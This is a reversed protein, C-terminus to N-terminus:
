IIIRHGMDEGQQDEFLRGELRNKWCSKLKVVIIVIVIVIVVVIILILIIGVVLLLSLPLFPLLFFHLASYRLLLFLQEKRGEM